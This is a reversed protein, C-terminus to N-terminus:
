QEEKYMSLLDAPVGFLHDNDILREKIEKASLKELYGDDFQAHVAAPTVELIENKIKIDLYDLDITYNGELQIGCHHALTRLNERDMDILGEHCAMLELQKQDLQQQLTLEIGFFEIDIDVKANGAHSYPTGYGQDGPAGAAMWLVLQYRTADDELLHAEIQPRLWNDLYVQTREARNRARPDDLPINQAEETQKLEDVTCGLKDAQKELRQQEKKEDAKQKRQADAEIKKKTDAQKKLYCPDDACYLTSGWNTKMKICTKCSKCETKYDFATHQWVNNEDRRGRPVEILLQDATEEVKRELDRVTIPECVKRKELFTHLENMVKDSPIAPLLYKGHAGTLKGQQIFDQAWQPLNLLRRINSIYSRDYNKFGYQELEDGLKTVKIKHETVMREFFLAMEIHNLDRRQLNESVQDLLREKPDTSERYLCPVEKLGALKAARYRREGALIFWQEKDDITEIYYLIPEMIGRAAIDNTLEQLAEPDFYKRPQNPDPKLDKLKIYEIAEIEKQAVQTTM